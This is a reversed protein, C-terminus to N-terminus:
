SDQHTGNRYDKQYTNAGTCFRLEYHVQLDTIFMM